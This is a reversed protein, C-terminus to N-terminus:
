KQVMFDAAGAVAKKAAQRAFYSPQDREPVFTLSAVDDNDAAAQYRALKREQSESWHFTISTIHNVWGDSSYKEDDKGTSRLDETTVWKRTIEIEAGKLLANFIQPKPRAGMLAGDIDQLLESFPAFEMMARKLKFNFQPKRSMEKTKINFKDLEVDINIALEALDCYANDVNLITAKVVQDKSEEVKQATTEGKKSNGM